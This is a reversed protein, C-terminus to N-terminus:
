KRPDITDPLCMLKIIIQAHDRSRYFMYSDIDDGKILTMKLSPNTTTTFTEKDSEFEQQQRQICQENKPFAKILEWSQQGNINNDVHKWLVWACQANAVSSFCILLLITVSLTTKM